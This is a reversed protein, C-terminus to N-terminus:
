GFLTLTILLARTHYNARRPSVATEPPEMFLLFTGLYKVDLKDRWILLTSDASGNGSM